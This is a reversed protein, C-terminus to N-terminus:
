TLWTIKIINIASLTV